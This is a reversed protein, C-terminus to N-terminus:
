WARLGPGGFASWGTAPLDMPTGDDGNITLQLSSDDGHYLVVRLKPPTLDSVPATM